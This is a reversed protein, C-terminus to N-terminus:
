EDMRRQNITYINIDGNEAHVRTGGPVDDITHMWEGDLPNFAHWTSGRADWLYAYVAHHNFGDWFFVQGFDLNGIAGDPTVLPKQWLVEGTHLDIAVVEQNEPPVVNTSRTNFLNYYLVGGIILRDQFLGEYADGDSFAHEGMDGGAVGGM